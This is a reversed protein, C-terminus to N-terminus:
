VLGSMFKDASIVRVGEKMFDVGNKNVVQYVFPINLKERFYNTNQSLTTDSLKVEVAFWPKNDVTVLFDVEKKDVNKMYNLNCKYGEYENLYHTFKLLHSAILNEFRAGEEEIESWDVLYLKPEKKISRIKKSNFPYIRFQYYFSELINLWSTIARHSVGLDERISNISLPSAVKNPLLDGLLKMSGIDRINEIDRIDERFLRELKENHWRRLTRESLKTLPEPFGGFKFLIEVTEQYKNSKFTLEEFPKFENKILELEALSFPHLTYYHYRGQLSDGGKRYINLRASGTVIIKYKEKNSDYIGKVLNKWKSYKHIEDFILLSSEGPLENSTIKKRDPQYDWNYYASNKFKTAIIEKSITTKGVQRAGGVFVLKDNMDSIINDTLYRKKQMNAESYSLTFCM